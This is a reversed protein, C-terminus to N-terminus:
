VKEYNNGSREARSCLNDLRKYSELFGMIDGDMFDRNTLFKLYIYWV